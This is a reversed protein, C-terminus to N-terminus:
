HKYVHLGHEVLDYRLRLLHVLLQLVLESRFHYRVVLEEFDLQSFSCAFYVLNERAGPVNLLRDVSLM